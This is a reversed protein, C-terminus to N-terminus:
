QRIGSWSYTRPPDVAEVRVGTFSQFDGSMTIEFTGVTWSGQGWTGSLTQGDVTGEYWRNFVLAPATGTVTDSHQTFTVTSTGNDIGEGVLTTEWVGTWSDEAPPTYSDSFWKGDVGQKMNWVSESAENSAQLAQISTTLTYSAQQFHNTMLEGDFCVTIEVDICAFDNDGYSGSVPEGEYYWWGDNKNFGWGEITINGYVPNILNQIAKVLADRDDETPDHEPDDSFCLAYYNDMLYDVDFEWGDEFQMRLVIDKSGENCIRITKKYCDGPNVNDMTEPLVSTEEASILVTGATFENEVEAKATFWAMTGGVFTAALAVVLTIIILRSKM